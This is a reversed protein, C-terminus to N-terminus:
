IKCQRKCVSEIQFLKFNTTQSLTLHIDILPVLGQISASTYLRLSNVQSLYTWM